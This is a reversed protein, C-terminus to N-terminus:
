RYRSCQHLKSNCGFNVSLFNIDLLALLVAGILPISRRLSTIASM